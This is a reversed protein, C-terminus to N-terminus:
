INNNNFINCLSIRGTKFTVKQVIITGVSLFVMIISTVAILMRPFNKFRQKNAIHTESEMNMDDENEDMTVISAEM